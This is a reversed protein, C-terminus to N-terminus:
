RSSVLNLIESERFCVKPSFTRVGITFPQLVTFTLEQFATCDYELLQGRVELKLKYDAKITLSCSGEAKHKVFVIKKLEDGPKMNGLLTKCERSMNEAIPSDLCMLTELSEGSSTSLTVSEIANPECNLLSINLPYFENVLSPPEHDISLKLHSERPLIHVNSFGGEPEWMTISKNLKFLSQNDNEFDKWHLVACRGSDDGLQLVVSMIKLTHDADTPQPVFSFPIVKIKGPELLLDAVYGNHSSPGNPIMKSDILVCRDNYNQNSLIVSLKYFRIPLPCLAKLYVNLTVLHDVCVTKYTFSTKCQVFSTTQNIDINYISPSKIKALDRRWLEETSEILAENLDLEPKPLGEPSLVTVLSDQVTEKRSSSLQIHPGLMELCITVYEQVNAVLYACKIAIVLVNTLLSWWRENRYDWIVHSLLTLATKYDKAILYEEGLQVVLCRKMRPCRYKKFQVIANNLLPTILSSHNIETFEKYQLARIGEKELQLDPPEIAQVGPRWARQGYYEVSSTNIVSPNKSNIADQCLQQCKKRRAVAHVAAQQYYFGPHQTQIASLGLKISEEFLDGFSCFQKSMWACHEFALEEPGVRHKFIDIHRRFQNISDLPTNLFFCLKCIKFNIFGAVMKVEALNTDSARVELLNGYAQKYHRLATPSDCKLESYFGMKFQHRVFLLQHTTKNLLEKHSKVQKAQQLYYNQALEFFANELRLVYGHMHDTHPFVFLLKGPLDCMNCLTTARDTAVVDEGPPLPTSHQILVVAVKTNRGEVSSRVIQIKSRLEMLKESWAMEDWDLDYFVVVLAPVKNLHKNMWNAHLIGKPVYWEYTSRKPKCRPYEHDGDLLLFRIPVRDLQRNNVFLDWISRHIANHIVDLGTVAVFSLLPASLELPFDALDCAM